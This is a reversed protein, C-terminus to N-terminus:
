TKSADQSNLLSKKTFYSFFDFHTIIFFLKFKRAIFQM